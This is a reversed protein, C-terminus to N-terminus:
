GESVGLRREIREIGADISAMAGDQAAESPMFAARRGKIGRMDAKLDVLDSALGSLKAQMAKLTELLLENTVDDAM